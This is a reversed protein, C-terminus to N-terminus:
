SIWGFFLGFNLWMRVVILGVGLLMMWFIMFLVIMFRVVEIVLYLCIFICNMWVYFNRFCCKSLDCYWGFLSVLVVCFVLVFIVVVSLWVRDGYLNVCLFLCIWKSCLLSLVFCVMVLSVLCFFILRIMIFVIVWVFNVFVSSLFVVLCIRLWMLYVISVILGFLKIEGIM